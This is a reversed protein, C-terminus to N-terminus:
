RLELQYTAHCSVCAGTIRVVRGVVSDRPIGTALAGALEDFQQHTNVGLQLFGEPLLKELAPDAATALGSRAAAERMASTDGAMSAKLIDHLSGLMTRMEARVAERAELPVHTVQRGDAGPQAPARPREVCGLGLLLLLAHGARASWDGSM